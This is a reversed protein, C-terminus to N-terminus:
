KGQAAVILNTVADSPSLMSLHSAPVRVTRSHAREAM